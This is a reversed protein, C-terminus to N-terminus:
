SALQGVREDRRRASWQLVAARANAVCNVLALTSEAGRNRNVSTAELGDYGAGTLPDWMVLGADNAGAFWRASQRVAKGYRHHSTLRYARLAADSLAWAEIPQQDFGPRREGLAWGGVPTFSFHRDCSEVNLLWNLTVLADNLLGHDDLARGIALLADPLLGNSYALRDEPWLWNAGRRPRPLETLAQDVLAKAATSDPFSRLVEAAGIAAHALARWHQTAFTAAEEFLARAAERVPSWPSRVAALALGQIARGSADDSDPDQTFARDYGLRLRFHGGGRHAHVLFGLYVETLERARPDSALRACLGLARGNDDTAYGNNRNPVSLFSHELIGTADTLRALPALSLPLDAADVPLRVTPPKM